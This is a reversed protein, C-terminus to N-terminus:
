TLVIILTGFPVFILTNKSLHNAIPIYQLGSICISNDEPVNYFQCTQPDPRQPTMTFIDVRVALWFGRFVGLPTPDRGRGYLLWEHVLDVNRNGFKWDADRLHQRLQGIPMAVVDPSPIAVDGWFHKTAWEHYRSILEADGGLVESVYDGWDFIEEVTEMPRTEFNDALHNFREDIESEAQPSTKWNLQGVATKRPAAQFIFTLLSVL